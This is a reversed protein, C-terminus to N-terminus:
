SDHLPYIAVFVINFVEHTPNPLKPNLKLWMQKVKDPYVVTDCVDRWILHELVDSTQALGSSRTVNIKLGQCQLM